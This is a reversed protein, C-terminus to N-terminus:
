KGTPLFWHLGRLDVGRKILAITPIGQMINNMITVLGIVSNGYQMALCGFDCACVCALECVCVCVCVCARVCVCVCIYIYIYVCM